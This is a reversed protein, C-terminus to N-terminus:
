RVTERTPEPDPRSTQRRRGAAGQLIEQYRRVLQAVHTLDTPATYLAEHAEAHIRELEPDEIAGVRGAKVQYAELLARLQNRAELPARNADLIRQAEDLLMAIRSTWDELRQRAGLWDGSRALRDIVDLEVRPDRPLEPPPPAAPVAIKVTVEEHAVRAEQIVTMLSALRARADALQADLVKWTTGVEAVVTTALDFASSMLTLLESPTCRTTTEPSGLLDREALPVPSRALEISPGELLARLEDARRPRHRLREARELLDDLVDRWAWLDTLAARAAARRTASDGTLVSAELLRRGSDIELEVLNAAIHDSAQRLRDLQNDLDDRKM